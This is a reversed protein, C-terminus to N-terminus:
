SATFAQAQWVTTQLAAPIVKGECSVSLFSSLMYPFKAYKHSVVELRIFM